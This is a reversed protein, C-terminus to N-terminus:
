VGFRRMLRAATTPAFSVPLFLSSASCRAMWRSPVPVLYALTESLQGSEVQRVVFQVADTIGFGTVEHLRLVEAALAM